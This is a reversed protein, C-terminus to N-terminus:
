KLEVITIGEGGAEIPAFYFTKINEHNKLVEKVTRKLAGTGKGHLIEIRSEGVMFSDDIFKVIEFEAEEPKKGRIDLRHERQSVTYNRYDKERVNQQRETAPLIENLDVKMKVSGAQVTARNKGSDLEVIKGVTSSNRLSVFSGVKFDTIKRNLVVNPSFLNENKKKIEDVTKKSEKIVEKAANSERLDKIVKEIKKNIDVLYVDAESKAKKLIESKEKELKEVNKKYLSSLGTLRLNELELQRLKKELSTSKSEIDVLFKEIKYKDTEMNEKALNLLDEPIGIRKAIEFAYSSGPVGMKFKYTPTLKEHDFEMAANAFGEEDQAILKLNGHHTSAFVLSGLDRLKILTAAALASGEAPDTGTGIEDLLILSNNDANKLIAGINGLHSTFTSLDDEISQEDGIDILINEFIHLNSDPHAPIHIGSQFLLSLLGITKLVVTKGGANPGTLIIIKENNLKVELPVTEKRSLKRQLVPHRADSLHFSKNENFSPFSGLIEISHKARAFVSDIYAIKNLSLLMKDSAKGILATIEKLLREVERREAFNLSIIENNLELTQEPEIYVTQGTSSESHIFGRLHRKHESKVPIVMRGDRLTLYDERVMEQDELSKMIRNISKILESQKDRIDKRLSSLKKSAKEKVEGNDDIISQIHHEFMKDVFLESTFNQFHPAIELNDKLFKHLKRSIVALNLVQLIKKSSLVSGEIKCQLLTESLDPIFEIPPPVNKILIDKANNVIEGEKKIHEWDTSPKLNQIYQKGNETISYNLVQILVKQYELKELTSSSIM